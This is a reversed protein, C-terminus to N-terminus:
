PRPPCFREQTDPHTYVPVTRLVRCPSAQTPREPHISTSSRSSATKPCVYVTSSADVTLDHCAVHPIPQLLYWLRYAPIFTQDTPAYTTGVIADYDRRFEFAGPPPLVQRAGDCYLYTNQRHIHPPPTPPNPELLPPFLKGRVIDGECHLVPRCFHFLSVLARPAGTRNWFPGIIFAILVCPAGSNLTRGNWTTTPTCETDQRHGLPTRSWPTDSSPVLASARRGLNRKQRQTRGRWVHSPRPARFISRNPPAGPPTTTRGLTSYQVYHTPPPLRLVRPLRSCLLRRTVVCRIRWVM